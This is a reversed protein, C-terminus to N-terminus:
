EMDTSILLSPDAHKTVVEDKEFIVSFVPLWKEPLKDYVSSQLENWNSGAITKGAARFLRASAVCISTFVPFESPDGYPRRTLSPNCNAIEILLPGAEVTRVAVCVSLLLVAIAWVRPAGARKVCGDLLAPIWVWNGGTPLESERAREQDVFYARLVRPLVVPLLAHHAADSLLLEQLTLPLGHQWHLGRKIVSGVVSVLPEAEKRLYKVHLLHLLCLAQRHSTDDDAARNGAVVPYLACIMVGLMLLSRPNQFLVNCDDTAHTGRRPVGDSQHASPKYSAPGSLASIIGLQSNSLTHHLLMGYAQSFTAVLQRLTAGTAREASLFNWMAEWAKRTFLSTECVSPVSEICRSVMEMSGSFFFALGAPLAAEVSLDYSISPAIQTMLKELSTCRPDTHRAQALSAVCLPFSSAAFLHADRLNFLITPIGDKPGGLVTFLVAGAECVVPDAAVFHSPTACEAAASAAPADFCEVIGDRQVDQAERAIRSADRLPFVDKPLRDVLSSFAQLVLPGVPPQGVKFLPSSKAVMISFEQLLSYTVDSSVRDPKALVAVAKALASLLTSGGTSLKLTHHDPRPLSGAWHHNRKCVPEMAWSGSGRSEAPTALTLSCVLQAVVHTHESLVDGRRPEIHQRPGDKGALLGVLATAVRLGWVFSEMAKETAPPEEVLRKVVKECIESGWPPPAGVGAIVTLLKKLSKKLGVADELALVVETLAEEFVIKPAAKAVEWGLIVSFSRKEQESINLLFAGTVQMLKTFVTTSPLAAHKNYEFGIGHCSLFHHAARTILARWAVELPVTALVVEVISSDKLATAQKSLRTWEFTAETSGRITELVDARLEVSSQSYAAAFVALLLPCAEWTHLYTEERISDDYCLCFSIFLVHVTKGFRPHPALDRMHDQLFSGLAALAPRLRGAETLTEFALSMRHTLIASLHEFIASVADQPPGTSGAPIAAGTKALLEPSARLGAKALVVRLYGLKATANDDVAPDSALSALAAHTRGSGGVRAGGAVLAEALDYAADGGGRPGGVVVHGNCRAHPPPPPSHPADLADSGLPRAEGPACPEDAADGAAEREDDCPPPPATKSQPAALADSGLPRAEGPASPGGGDASGSAPESGNAPRAGPSVGGTALVLARYRGARSTDTLFSQVSEGFGHQEVALLLTTVRAATDAAASRDIATLARALAADIAPHRCGGRACKVNSVFAKFVDHSRHCGLFLCLYGAPEALGRAWLRKSPVLSLCHAVADFVNTVAEVECAPVPPPRAGSLYPAAIAALLALVGEFVPTLDRVAGAPAGAGAAWGFVRKVLRCTGRVPAFCGAAARRSVAALIDCVSGGGALAAAPLVALLKAMADPRTWDAPARPADPVPEALLGLLGRVTAPVDGGLAFSCVLSVPDGRQALCGKLELVSPDASKAEREKLAACLTAAAEVGSEGRALGKWGGSACQQVFQAVHKVPQKSSESHRLVVGCLVFAHSGFRTLAPLREFIADVVASSQAPDQLMPLLAEILKPTHSLTSLELVEYAVREPEKGRDVEKAISPLIHHLQHLLPVPTSLVVGSTNEQEADDGDPAGRWSELQAEAAMCFRKSMDKEPDLRSFDVGRCYLTHLLRIVALCVDPDLSRFFLQLGDLIPKLFVNLPVAKPSSRLTRVRKLAGFPIQGDFPLPRHKNMDPHGYSTRFMSGLLLLVGKPQGTKHLAVIRLLPDTLACVVTQDCAEEVAATLLSLCVESLGSFGEPIGDVPTGKYVSKHAVEKAAAISTVVADNLFAQSVDVTAPLPCSAMQSATSKLVEDPTCEQDIGSTRQALAATVLSWQLGVQILLSHYTKPRVHSTCGAVFGRLTLMVVTIHRLQPYAQAVLLRLVQLLVSIASDSHTALASSYHSGAYGFADSLAYLLRLGSTLGEPLRPKGGRVGGIVTTLKQLTDRIAISVNYMPYAPQESLLWANSHWHQLAPSSQYLHVPTSSASVNFTSAAGYHPPPMDAITSIPHIAVLITCMVSCAKARIREDKEGTLTVCWWLGADTLLSDAVCRWPVAACLELLGIPVTWVSGWSGLDRAAAHDSLTLHLLQHAAAYADRSPSLLMAPVAVALAQFCSKQTYTCSRQDLALTSAQVDKVVTLLSVAERYRRVSVMSTIVAGCCAVSSCRVTADEHDSLKVLLRYARGLCPASPHLSVLLGLHRICHGVAGERGKGPWGELFALLVDADAATSSSAPPPADLPALGAEPAAPAPNCAIPPTRPTSLPTPSGPPVLLQQSTADAPPNLTDEGTTTPTHVSKTTWGSSALIYRRNKCGDLLTIVHEVSDLCASLLSADVATSATALFRAISMSSAVRILRLMPILINKETFRGCVALRALEVVTAVIGKARNCRETGTLAHGEGGAAGDALRFGVLVVLQADVFAEMRCPRGYALVAAVAAAGSRRADDDQHDLMELLPGWVEAFVVEQVGPLIFPAFQKAASGVARLVHVDGARVLEALPLLLGRLLIKRHSCDALKVLAATVELATRQVHPSGPRLGELLKGFVAHEGQGKQIIQWAVLHLSDRVTDYLTLDGNASAVGCLHLFASVTRQLCRQIDPADAPGSPTTLLQAISATLGSVHASVQGLTQQQQQQQQPSATGLAAGTRGLELLGELADLGRDCLAIKASLM